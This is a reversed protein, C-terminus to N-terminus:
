LAEAYLDYTDAATIRVEAFEGVALRRADGERERIRVVGDIQPAEGASRAICVGDETADILVRCTQGVRAALRARSIQAAKEMFRQYREARLAAPVHGALANAAAGEVPSYEFCGVRDLQAEDLWALLEKFDAESEGPFGVIFSSRVVLGPQARRWAAIRRLTNEAHAPRRMRRLVAPSAHQFPIDLYPLVGPEAMLAVVEDVHPYPYVYHLRIWVGLEGLTRALDIFRTQYERERWRVAAYRLDSGYASTDQSIVLLERVGARVLQEAERLVADLPRSQLLGRLQPIICFSCRNNCGESIKLYAYHPPTLHLGQPPVLDTFPDHPRPLHEDVAAIVQEYAHPGTVALVKPHRELIRQPQAGLCGTVLVRGNQALAEGIAELSEDIAADIFGCTNVVVLDAQEYGAVIQYGRSRLQTILRESDVLAKPCGLSVFGVAPAQGPARAASARRVPRTTRRNGSSSHAASKTAPPTM